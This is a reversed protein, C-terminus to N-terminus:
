PLSKRGSWASDTSWTFVRTLAEARRQLAQIASTQGAIEGAQAAVNQQLTTVVAHQKQLDGRLRAIEETQKSIVRGQKQLADAQAAVQEEMAGRRASRDHLAGSAELHDGVEARAAPEWSGGNPAEFRNKRYVCTESAHRAADKRLVSEKCGAAANPCQMPEYECSESLHGVLECVRGRWSCRLEADSRRHEEVRAALEGKKGKTSLGRRGLEERLDDVSTSQAPQLKARKAAPAAGGEGVGECDDPGNKCRTRLQGILGELPRCRQLRSEDTAHGCIPCQQRKHLEAVYCARCLTHGEPCGVSPEDLVMFCVPCEAMDKGEELWATDLQTGAMEGSGSSRYPTPPAQRRM